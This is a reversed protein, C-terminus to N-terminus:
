ATTYWDYLLLIGPPELLLTLEDWENAFIYCRWHQQATIDMFSQLHLAVQDARGSASLFDSKPLAPVNKDYWAAKLFAEVDAHPTTKRSVTEIVIRLNEESASSEFEFQDFLLIRMCDGKLQSPPHIDEIM